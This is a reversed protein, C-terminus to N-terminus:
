SGPAEDWRQMRDKPSSLVALRLLQQQARERGSVGAPDKRKCETVKVGGRRSWRVGFGQAM